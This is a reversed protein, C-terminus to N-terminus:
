ATSTKWKEQKRLLANAFVVLKRMLATIAVKPAKGAKCLQQYKQKLVPNHRISALAAMYLAHRVTARGGRISPRGRWSGSQKAFPALGTLSAAQGPDLTGLEPMDIVLTIATVHGVGPISLLTEFRQNLDEDAKIEEKIAKDIDAIQRTLLTIQEMAQRKALELTLTQVRTKIAATTRVLSRRLTLLEKLKETRQSIYPTPKIQTVLGLYALVGADTQDTKAFQGIGEAFRRARGANIKLFKHGADILAREFARHYAGTPEFVILHPITKGIWKLFAEFGQQNNEFQARAADPLRHADFVDKSIDVGISVKSM